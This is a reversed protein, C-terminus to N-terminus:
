EEIMIMKTLWVPTNALYTMPSGIQEDYEERWSQQVTYKLVQQKPQPASMPCHKAADSM